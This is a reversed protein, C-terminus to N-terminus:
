MSKLMRWLLTCGTVQLTLSLLLMAKGATTAWMDLIFTPNTMLIYSGIALPLGALVVASIRTEGTMASLQRSAQERDRIIMILNNLMDTSNGGYRQNVQVGLALMYFEERPYDEAFENVAEAMPMGLEIDRRVTQIAQNLPYPCRKMALLMADNLTRGSKISRIMHDLLTPLQAIMRELRRQARWQGVLYVVLAILVLAIPPLVWSIQTLMLALLLVLSTAVAVVWPPLELGAQSLWRAVGRPRRERRTMPTRESQLRQGVREGVAQRRSLSVLLLGAGLLLLSGVMLLLSVSGM